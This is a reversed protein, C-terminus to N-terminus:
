TSTFEFHHLDPTSFTAGWTFAEKHLADVLEWSLAFFGYRWRRVWELGLAKLNADGEVTTKLVDGGQAEAAHVAAQLKSVFSNNIQVISTHLQQPSTRWLSVRTEKSLRMGTFGEIKDWRELQANRSADIDIASGTAHESLTGLRYGGKKMPRANYGGAQFQLNTTVRVRQLAASLRESKGQKIAYALSSSPGNKLEYARRVWAYFVDQAEQWDPELRGGSHHTALYKKTLLPPEVQNRLRAGDANLEERCTALYDSYDLSGGFFANRDTLYQSTEYNSPKGQARRRRAYVLKANASLMPGYARVLRDLELDADDLDRPAHLSLRADLLAYRGATSWPREISDDILSKVRHQLHWQELDAHWPGPGKLLSPVDPARPLRKRGM